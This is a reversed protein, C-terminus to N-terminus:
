KGKKYKVNFDDQSLKLTRFRIHFSTDVIHMYIGAYSFM